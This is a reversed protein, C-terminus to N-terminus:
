PLVTKGKAVMRGDVWLTAEWEGPMSYAWTGLTPVVTSSSFDLTSRGAATVGTVSHYIGGGPTTLVLRSDGVTRGDGRGRVVMEFGQPGVGVGVTAQLAHRAASRKLRPLRRRGSGPRIRRSLAVNAARRRAGATRAARRRAATTSASRRSVTTARRASSRSVSSRVSRGAAAATAAKLSSSAMVSASAGSVQRGGSLAGGAEADLAYYRGREDCAFFRMTAVDLTPSSVAYGLSYSSVGALTSRELTALGSNTGVYVKTGIVIPLRPSTLGSATAGVAGTTADIAYVQGFSSSVFVAEPAPWPTGIVYNGAVPRVSREVVGDSTRIIRLRGDNTGVFLRSGRLSPSGDSVAGLEVEWVPTGTVTLAFLRGRGDAHNATYFIRNTTWDVAPVCSVTGTAPRADRWMVAGDTANLAYFANDSAGVNYTGVYVTNATTTGSAVAPKYGVGGQVHDDVGPAAFSKTAASYDGAVPVRWILNGSDDLQYLYGDYSGAFVRLSGGITLVTQNQVMGGTAYSWRLRGDTQSFSRIVGDNSGGYIAKNLPYASPNGLTVGGTQYSWTPPRYVIRLSMLDHRTSAQKDGYAMFRIRLRELKGYDVVQPLSVTDTASEQGSTTALTTETWNAGDDVSVRLKTYLNVVPHTAQRVSFLTVSEVVSGPPVVEPLTFELYETNDYAGTPWKSASREFWADDSIAMPDNANAYTGSSYDDGREPAWSLTGRNTVLTLRMQEWCVAGGGNTAQFRVKLGSAKTPTSIAPLDITDVVASTGAASTLAHTTWTSGDFVLLRAATTTAVANAYVSRITTGWVTTGTPVVSAFTFEAYRTALYSPAWAQSNLRRGDQSYLPAHRALASGATSDTMIWPSLTTTVSPAAASAATPASLVWALVAIFVALGRRGLTRPVEGASDTVLM